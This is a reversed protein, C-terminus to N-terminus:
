RTWSIETHQQAMNQTVLPLVDVGDAGRRREVVDHALHYKVVDSREDDRVGSPRAPHDADDGFTVDEARQGVIAAAQLDDFNGVRHRSVDDRAIGFVRDFFCHLQHGLMANPMQRYRIVAFQLAQDRDAIEDFVLDFLKREFVMVQFRIQLTLSSCLCDQISDSVNKSCSAASLSTYYLNSKFLLFRLSCLFSLPM